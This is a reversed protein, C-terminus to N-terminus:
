LGRELGWAAAGLTGELPVGRVPGLWNRGGTHVCPDSPGHGRKDVGLCGSPGGQLRSYIIHVHPVGAHATDQHCCSQGLGARRTHFHGASFM